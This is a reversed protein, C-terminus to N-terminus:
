LTTFSPRPCPSDSRHCRRRDHRRSGTSCGRSRRGSRPSLHRRLRRGVAHPGPGALRRDHRHACRRDRGHGHGPQRDPLHRGRRGTQGRRDQSREVGPGRGAPRRIPQRHRHPGRESIAADGGSGAQGNRRPAAHSDAADLVAPKDMQRILAQVLEVTEPHITLGPGIAVATRGSIFTLLRDLGSRALTRAKTEPMPVTMAELLKAELTDNVSSPTAVTVLGAGVRLAAKAAMAAAGTKGVSGAIIAAHGFTGKHSSPPRRPLAGRILAETLLSIRSEVEEAYSSPIGIDVIRVQGAHDIGSGVYLGLKPLGFTVTLTARVAAGLVSGTDAHIGSPLDVAVTPRQAENITEIAERYNGTVPASLGTGLLADVVAESEALPSKLQEISGLTRVTSKGATQVLRRYMTRADRSLDKEGTLLFVRVRARK